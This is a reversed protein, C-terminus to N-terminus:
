IEKKQPTSGLISFFTRQNKLKIRDTISITNASRREGGQPTIVELDPNGIIASHIDDTHAPTTNFILEYFEGVEVVDGLESIVRPIDDRLQDLARARDDLDFLYLDGETQRPDYSLMNLGSRGFHAQASSNHHLTNNYVQRARHSNAFHLLWYRWGDPNNISFPSTFLSFRQFSEFVIREAAGLWERKGMQEQLADLDKSNLGVPALQAELAKLNAKKLFALLASIVFTLFIEASINSQMIDQLIDRSVGSHGCQDLNFLVNRFRRDLILKKIHKYADEFTQNIYVVKLSLQHVNNRIEAEFPAVNEKLQQLADANSDNLVLLCEIELKRFGNALRYSNAKELAEILCELFIIPSGPTHDSYRGAGAFGDVIALRFREQQPIQCRVALYRAFYERLIKLKRRSHEKLEAGTSWEYPKEVM